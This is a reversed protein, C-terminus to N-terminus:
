FRLCSRVTIVAKHIARSCPRSLHSNPCAQHQRHPCSLFQATAPTLFRPHQQVLNQSLPHSRKLTGNHHKTFVLFTNKTNEFSTKKKKQTEEEGEKKKEKRGQKQLSFSTLLSLTKSLKSSFYLSLPTKIPNENLPLFTQHAEEVEAEAKVTLFFFFPPPPPYNPLTTNKYILPIQPANVNLLLPINTFLTSINRYLNPHFKVGVWGIAGM